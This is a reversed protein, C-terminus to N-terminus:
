GEAVAPVPNPPRRRRRPPSDGVDDDGTDDDAGAPAIGAGHLKRMQWTGDPFLVSHDGGRWVKWVGSYRELFKRLARVAKKVANKSPTAM